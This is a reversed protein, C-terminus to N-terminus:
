HCWPARVPATLRTLFDTATRGALFDPHQAIRKLPALNTKIGAIRVQALASQLQQIAAPRDVDWVILKALLPDYFPSVVTGPELYTDVRVGAPWAVEQVVGPCPMGTEPDEAYIRVEIAHGRRKVDEQRLDLQQGAAIALQWVVLDVDTTLETVPHEVQLRTNMELFYYRGAEDLLFELTGANSYDLQRIAHLAVEGMEQRLAESLAPSGAEEVVKQHRRQISCEREGLQVAQGHQDALVQIEIHRPRLLAKELYLDGNGFYSRARNSCLNFAR